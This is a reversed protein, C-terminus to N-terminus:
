KSEKTQPAQELDVKEIEAIVYYKNWFVDEREGDERLCIEVFGEKPLASFDINDEIADKILTIDDVGGFATIDLSGIIQTIELSYEGESPNCGSEIFMTVKVQNRM